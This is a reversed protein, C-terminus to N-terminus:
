GNKPAAPRPRASPSGDVTVKSHDQLLEGNEDDIFRLVQAVVDEFIKAEQAVEGHVGLIAQAQHEDPEGLQAPAEGHGHVFGEGLAEDYAMMEIAEVAVLEVVGEGVTQSEGAAFERQELRGGDLRQELTRASQRRSMLRM